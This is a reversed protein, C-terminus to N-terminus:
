GSNTSGLHGDQGYLGDQETRALVLFQGAHGLANEFSAMKMLASKIQIDSISNAIATTTAGKIKQQNWFVLGSNTIGRREMDNHMLRLNEDERANLAQAQQRIM